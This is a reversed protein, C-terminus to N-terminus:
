KNWKDYVKKFALIPRVVKTREAARKALKGLKPNARKEAQKLKALPSGKRFRREVEPDLARRTSSGSSARVSAGYARRAKTKMEKPTLLVGKKLAKKAMRGRIIQLKRDVYKKHHARGEKEWERSAGYLHDVSAM